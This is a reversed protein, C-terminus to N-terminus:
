DTTSRNDVLTWPRGPRAPELRGADRLRKAAWRLDYQWTYFLNEAARLDHEHRRWIVQSVQLPSGSGGLEELAEETWRM